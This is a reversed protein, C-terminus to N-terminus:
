FYQYKQFSKQLLYSEIYNNRRSNNRSTIYAEIYRIINTQVFQLMEININSIFKM